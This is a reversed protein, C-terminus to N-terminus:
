PILTYTFPFGLLTLPPELQASQQTSLKPCPLLNSSPLFWEACRAAPYPWGSDRVRPIRRSAEYLERLKISLDADDIFGKILNVLLAELPHTM